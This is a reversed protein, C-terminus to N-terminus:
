KCRVPAHPSCRNGTACRLAEENGLEEIPDVVRRRITSEAIENVGRRTIEATTRKNCSWNDAPVKGKECHLASSRGTSRSAYAWNIPDDRVGLM